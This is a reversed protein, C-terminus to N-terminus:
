QVVRKIANEPQINEAYPDPVGLGALISTELPEMIRADKLREHDYGLLHLVGHVVLHSVHDGLPKGAVLAEEIVTEAGLIVDGLPRVMGMGPQTAPAPFSLVNTPKDKGRWELNLVQVAADDGFMLTLSTSPNAANAGVLAAIAARRVRKRLDPLASRWLKSRVLIDIDPAPAAIPRPGTRSHSRPM